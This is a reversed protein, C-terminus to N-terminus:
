WKRKKRRGEGRRGEGVEEEEGERDGVMKRRRRRGIGGRGEEKM